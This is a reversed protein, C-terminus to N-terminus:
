GTTSNLCRERDLSAHDRCKLVVQTEQQHNPVHPAQVTDLYKAPLRHLGHDGVLNRCAGFPIRPALAARGPDEVLLPLAVAHESLDLHLVELLHAVRSVGAQRGPRHARLEAPSTQAPWSPGDVGSQIEDDERHGLRGQLQVVLLVEPVTGAPGDVRPDEPGRRPWHLNGVIRGLAVLADLAALQARGRVGPVAAPVQALQDLGLLRRHQAALGQLLQRDAAAVGPEVLDVLVLLVLRRIGAAGKSLQLAGALGETGRDAGLEGEAGLDSGAAWRLPRRARRQAARPHQQAAPSPQAESPQAPGRQAAAAAALEESELPRAPASRGPARFGRRLRPAQPPARRAGTRIAGGCRAAPRRLQHRADACTIRCPRVPARGRRCQARKEQATITAM